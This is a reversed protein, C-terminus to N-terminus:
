TAGIRVERGGGVTLTNTGRVSSCGWDARKVNHNTGSATEAMKVNQLNCKANANQLM